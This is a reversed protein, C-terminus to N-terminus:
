VEYRYRMRFPRTRRIVEAQVEASMKERWSEDLRVETSGTLRMPNGIIHHDTDRFSIPGTMPELGVFRAIRALEGIVDRCLDEYRLLMSRDPPLLRIVREVNGCTRNWYASARRVSSGRRRMDSSVYGRSDRVLHVVKLRLTPIRILFRIRLPDKMASVFVRKGTVERISRVLAASRTSIAAIRGSWPPIRRVVADRVGDILNCKLSRVLLQRMLRNGGLDFTTDWEDPGFRLGRQGMRRAVELWFPCSKLPAGCSCAYEHPDAIEPIPGWDEGVSAMEPHANLLFALLTSGSFGAGAIYLVDDIIDGNSNV